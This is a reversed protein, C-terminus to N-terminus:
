PRPMPTATAFPDAAPPIAAATNTTPIPTATPKPTSPSELVFEGNLTNKDGNVQEIRLEVTAKGAGASSPVEAKWKCYTRDEYETGLTWRMGNAFQIKGVCTSGTPVIASVEFKEGRKVKDPLKAWSSSLPEDDRSEVVVNGTLTSQIGHDDVFVRVVAVGRPTAAPTKVSWLCRGKKESQRDLAAVTGDPFTVDGYCVITDPVLVRVEIEDGRDITDPLGKFKVSVTAPTEDVTLLSSISTDKGKARVSVTVRSDGRKADEPVTITWRCVGAQDVIESLKVNDASRFTVDGKCKSGSPVLVEIPLLGDRHVVSPLNQFAILLEPDETGRSVDFSSTITTPRGDQIVTITVIATGRDVDGPVTVEWRCEDNDESRSDLSQVKGDEYRILGQCTVKDPVDLRITFTSNRKVTGPLDKLQLSVADLRVVVQFTASLEYRDPGHKVSVAIDAEGRRTNLPVVVDWRCQDDHEDVQKLDQKSNDRYVITGDCVSGNEVDVQVRLPEGTRVSAPLDRFAIEVNAPAAAATGAEWRPVAVAATLIATVLVAVM